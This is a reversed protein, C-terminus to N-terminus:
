LHQRHVREQVHIVVEEVVEVIDVRLVKDRAVLLDNELLPYLVDLNTNARRHKSGERYAWGHARVRVCQAQVRVCMCVSGSALVRALM